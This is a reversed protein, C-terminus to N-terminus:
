VMDALITKLVKINEQMGHIYSDLSDEESTLSTLTYVEAGTEQSINTAVSDKFETETLLVKIDHTQIEDIVTAVEGANLGSEEDLDLCYVTKLGVYDALYAFGEHFIIVEKPKDTKIADLQEQIENVKQAYVTLNDAYADANEQDAHSLGDTINQLQILYRAPDLWVHANNEHEQEEEHTKAEEHVHNHGEVEGLLEIGESADIVPLDPYTKMVDELFTEMGGGNMVFVDAGELKRMDNTTIQYDHLCGSQNETLNVVRVHEIGATINKTALYTPYFSTVITFEEKTEEQNSGVAKSIGFGAVGVVVLIGILVLFKKM